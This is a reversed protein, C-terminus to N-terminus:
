FYKEESAVIVLKRRQTLTNKDQRQMFVASATPPIETPFVNLSLAAHPSCSASFITKMRKGGNAM